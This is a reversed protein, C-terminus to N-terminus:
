EFSGVNSVCAKRHQNPGRRLEHNSAVVPVRYFTAAWGATWDATSPQRGLLHRFEQATCLVRSYSTMLWYHSAADDSLHDDSIEIWGFKKWRLLMGGIALLSFSGICGTVYQLQIGRWMGIRASHKDVPVLLLFFVHPTAQWVKDELAM